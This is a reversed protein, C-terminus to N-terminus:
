RKCASPCFGLALPDTVQKLPNLTFDELILFRKDHILETSYELVQLHSAADFRSYLHDIDGSAIYLFSLMDMEDSLEFVYGAKVRVVKSICLVPQSRAPVDGICLCRLFGSKDISSEHLSDLFRSDLAGRSEVGSVVLECLTPETMLKLFEQQAPRYLDEETCEGERNAVCETPKSYSALEESANAHKTCDQLLTDPDCLSPPFTPIAALACPSSDHSSLMDDDVSLACEADDKNSSIDFCATPPTSAAEAAVTDAVRSASIPLALDGHSYFCQAGYKCYGSRQFRRCQRTVRPKNSTFPNSFTADDPNSLVTSSEHLGASADVKSVPVTDVGSACSDKPCSTVPVVITCFRPLSDLAEFAAAVQETSAGASLMSSAVSAKAHNLGVYSSPLM